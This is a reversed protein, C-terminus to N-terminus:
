LKMRLADMLAIIGHISNQEFCDDDMTIGNKEMTFKRLTMLAERSVEICKDTLSKKHKKIDEINSKDISDMLLHYETHLSRFVDADAMGKAGHRECLYAKRIMSEYRMSCDDILNSM